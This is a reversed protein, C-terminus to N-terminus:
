PIVVDQQFPADPPANDGAHDYANDWGPPNGSWTNHHGGGGVQRLEERPVERMKGTLHVKPPVKMM